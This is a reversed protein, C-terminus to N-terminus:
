KLIVAMSTNSMDTNFVEYVGLQMRSYKNQSNTYRYLHSTGYCNCLHYWKTM